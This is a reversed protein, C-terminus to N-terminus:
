ADSHSSSISPRRLYRYGTRRTLGLRRYWDGASKADGSAAAARGAWYAGRAVSIPYRVIAHLTKFHPYALTADTLHRLAIWGALWEAQARPLTETQRHESAFGFAVSILTALGLM